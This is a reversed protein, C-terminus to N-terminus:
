HIWYTPLEGNPLRSIDSSLPLKTCFPTAGKEMCKQLVSAAEEAIDEPAEINWEDHAQICIKVINQYNNKVIWKFFLIGGLKTCMSGRNQIRYNISDKELDSKLKFYERIEQIEDCYPDEYKLERYHQWFGDMNMKDRVHIWKTNWNPIHCRHGTVPNMLIYGDRIVARRCYTQYKAVGPFGKMYSDYIEKAEELPIGANKSITNFDGGYGISFEIGKASQRLSKYKIAIDEIKTDRPIERTYSMYATLSHLDGCGNTYLDLLAEDGTVSALLRSEQSQYDESIWKNGNESVFCSRTKADRPIQQINIGSEGGGSSLRATTTGIQHFDPHIRGTKENIAKLWNDGFASCVKSAAKYELYADAFEPCINRQAKITKSDTSKKKKKTKKDFTDLKFGLLELFPIIQQPSSWNITCYPKDNFGNWLDGQLNQEVWPFPIEIEECYLIGLEPETSKRTYYRKPKKSPLCLKIGFKKVEEEDHIWQTDVIHEVVITKLRVNGQHENFYKLVFSNLKETSDNLKAQDEAM